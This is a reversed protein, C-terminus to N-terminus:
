FTVQYNGKKNLKDEYSVTNFNNNKKYNGGDKRLLFYDVNLTSQEFCFFIYIIVNRCFM